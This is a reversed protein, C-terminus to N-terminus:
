TVPVKARRYLAYKTLREPIGGVVHPMTETVGESGGEKYKRNGLVRKREGGGQFITDSIVERRRCVQQLAKDPEAWTPRPKQLKKAKETM